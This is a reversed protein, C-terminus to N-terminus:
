KTRPRPAARDPSMLSMTTQRYGAPIEFLAPDPDGLRLDESTRTQIAKGNRSTVTKLMHCGLSPAASVETVHGTPSKVSIREVPVGLITNPSKDVSVVAGAYARFRAECPEESSFHGTGPRLTVSASRSQPTVLFDRGNFVDLVQRVRGAGPNLDVSAISGERNVAFLYRSESVVNGASDFQRTVETVTFPESTQPFAYAALFLFGAFLRMIMSEPM